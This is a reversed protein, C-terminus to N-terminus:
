YAIYGRTMRRPPKHGLGECELLWFRRAYNLDRIRKIRFVNSGIVVQHDREIHRDRRYRLTMFHTIVDNLQASNQYITAGVQTVKAWAQCSEPYVDNFGVTNDPTNKHRRVTIRTNLEGQDPYRYTASTEAHRRKM